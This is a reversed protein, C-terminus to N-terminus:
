RTGDMELLYTALSAIARGRHSLANKRESSMEAFSEAYGSPRFIPDYGFGEHGSAELLIEGAVEGEFTKEQGDIILSVVTRFRAQRDEVGNLESLLKAMNAKADCAEGAYRASYVGPAGGLAQVELGTDDAFCPLGHRAYVTRAKIAANEELTHGTEEIEEFDQLDRLSVVEVADGLIARVESLKHDNHTAFVLKM